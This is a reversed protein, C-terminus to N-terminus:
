HMKFQDALWEHTTVGQVLLGRPRDRFNKYGWTGPESPWVSGRPIYHLQSVRTLRNGARALKSTPTPNQPSLIVGLYGSSHSQPTCNQSRKATKPGKIQM